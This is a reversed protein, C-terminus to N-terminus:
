ASGDGSVLELSATGLGAEPHASPEDVLIYVLACVAFPPDLDPLRGGLLPDVAKGGSLDVEHTGIKQEQGSPISRALLEIKAAAGGNSPLHLEAPDIRVRAAAWGHRMLPAPADLVGFRHVKRAPASRKGGNGRTQPSSEKVPPISQAIHPTHAPDTVNICSELFDLLRQGSWGSWAETHKTELHTVHTTVVRPPDGDIRVEV